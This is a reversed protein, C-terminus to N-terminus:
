PALVELLEACRDDVLVAPPRGAPAAEYRVLGAVEHANWEPRRCDLYRDPDIALWTTVAASM